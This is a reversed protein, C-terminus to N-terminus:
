AFGLLKPVFLVLPPYYTVVLVVVFGMIIFPMTAKVVNEFKEKGVAATAYLVVGVPPTILGVTLNVLMMVAFHLPDVGMKYAIPALIPAFLMIAAGTEMWMGIIILMFNMVLLIVYRNSTLGLLGSALQDPIKEVGIAWAFVSSLAIILFLNATSQASTWLAETVQKIKLNKFVFVGVALAYFVAVAAAETPTFIGLTIGLLIIAPMALAIYGDRTYKRREEKTYQKEHKPLNLRKANLKVYLMQSLAIMLGPIFGAYLVAGVSLSMVGAYLIAINSPPILPSQISSAATISCAFANDYGEERMAEIEVHGLGAIDSLAAGSLSGMVTSAVINVYALGGRYKGLRIRVFDFMRTSIGTKIMIEAALMFLPLAMLTFSNVGSFMRMPMITINVPNTLVMYILTTGGIAFAIPFGIIITVMLIITAITFEFM